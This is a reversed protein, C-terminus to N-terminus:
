HEKRQAPPKVSLLSTLEGTRTVTAWAVPDNAYRVSTDPVLPNVEKHKLLRPLLTINAKGAAALKLIRDAATRKLSHAGAHKVGAKRIRRRLGGTPDKLGSLHPCITETQPLATLFEWEKRREPEFVAMTRNTVAFPHDHGSKTVQLWNIALQLDGAKTLHRGTLQLVESVRSATKYSLYVAVWEPFTLLRELKLMEVTTLTAAQRHPIIAGRRNLAKLFQSVRLSKKGFRMLLQRNCFRGYSVVGSLPKGETEKTARLHELFTLV